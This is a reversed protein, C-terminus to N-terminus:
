LDAKRHSFNQIRVKYIKELYNKVDSKTMESSVIFNVQFCYNVNKSQKLQIFEQMCFYYQDFIKGTGM